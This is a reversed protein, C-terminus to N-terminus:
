EKETPIKRATKKLANEFENKSIPELEIKPKLEKVHKNKKPEAKRKPAPKTM